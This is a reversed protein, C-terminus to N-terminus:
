QQPKKHQLASAEPLEPKLITAHPSLLELERARVRLCLLPVPGQNSWPMHSRGPGLIVGVDGTNASPNRGM